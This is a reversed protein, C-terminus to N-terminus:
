IRTVDASTNLVIFIFDVTSFFDVSSGEFVSNIVVMLFEHLDLGRARLGCSLTMHLMHFSAPADLLFQRDFYIFLGVRTRLICGTDADLVM